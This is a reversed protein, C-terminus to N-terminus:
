INVPRKEVVPSELKSEEIFIWCLLAFPLDEVSVRATITANLPIEFHNALPKSNFNTLGHMMM